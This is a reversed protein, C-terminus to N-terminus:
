IQYDGTFQKKRGFDTKEWAREHFYYLVLRISHFTVTIYTTQEWNNTFLWTLGGLIVIGIVRWTISKVWSRLHSDVSSAM